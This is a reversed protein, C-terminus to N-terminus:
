ASVPVLDITVSVGGGLDGSISRKSTGAATYLALRIAEKGPQQKGSVTEVELYRPDEFQRTPVDFTWQGGNEAPADNIGAYAKKLEESRVDVGLSRVGLARSPHEINEPVHSEVRLRRPTRDLCWFPLEGREVVGEPGPLAVAWKLEEGDPRIRGGPVPDEYSALSQAARVRDQVAAFGSEDPLSYAWDIVTGDPKPGWKHKLREDRPLGPVFSILEIYTGDAFVVLKNETRGDAHRGGTLIAFESSLWAPLSALVDHPLLIVIHDLFPKSSAM